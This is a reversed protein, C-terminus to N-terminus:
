KASVSTWREKGNVDLLIRNVGSPHNDVAKIIGTIGSTTTTYAQGVELTTNMQKRENPTPLIIAFAVSM